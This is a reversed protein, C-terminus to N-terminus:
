QNEGIIYAPLKRQAKVLALEHPAKKTKRFMSCSAKATHSTCHGTSRRRKKWINEEGDIASQAMDLCHGRLNELQYIVEWLEEEKM